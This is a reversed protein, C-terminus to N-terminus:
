VGGRGRVLAAVALAIIGYVVFLGLAIPGTKRKYLVALGISLVVVWWIIFLDIMGALRAFFTGEELMPLLVALNTASTMSERVYNLPMVFLQQVCTVVSSHVLVTFVQKFTANGGTATFVGFLIGTMILTIIPSMVLMSGAQIMWAYPAMKEMGQYQQDTVQRGFNESSRVAQDLWAQQGVKTALFGGICVVSVLLVLAYMGLWRPHAVVNAFTERPSLLMGLFRQFLGKPGAVPEPAVSPETM